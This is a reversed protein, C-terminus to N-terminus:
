WRKKINCIILPVIRLLITAHGTLAQLIVFNIFFSGVSPLSIALLKPLSTPHDIIEQVRDFFAGALVSGLFKNVIQFYVFLLVCKENATVTPEQMAPSAKM